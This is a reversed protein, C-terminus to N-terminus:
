EHHAEMDHQYQCAQLWVPDHSVSVMTLSLESLAAIVKDRTAPDLASTPEDLLWIPRSMLLARAIALRQKEGGSLQSALKTLSHSLSLKALAALCQREDPQSSKMAKMCWPLLLVEGITEAGMVPQQPLYCFQQRWWGLSEADVTKDQWKFSGASASRLGALVQLLSTKGCGSPGSIALHEGKRLTRTLYDHETSELGSGLGCIVLDNCIAQKM